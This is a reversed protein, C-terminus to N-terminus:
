RVFDKDKIGMMNGYESNDADLQPPPNSQASPTNKDREMAAEIRLFKDRFSRGCEVVPTFRGSQNKEYWKMALRARDFSIKEVTSLKRIDTEWSKLKQASITINRKSRIIKSLYLALSEWRDDDSRRATPCITSNNMTSNSDVTSNNNNFKKISTVKVKKYQDTLSDKVLEPDTLSDKVLETENDHKLFMPRDLLPDGFRSDDFPEIDHLDKESPDELPLIEYKNGKRLRTDKYRQATVKILGYKELTKIHKLFSIHSIGIWKGWDNATVNPFPIREGGRCFRNLEQYVIYAGPGIIRLWKDLLINEILFYGRKYNKLETTMQLRRPPFSFRGAHQHHMPFDFSGARHATGCGTWRVSVTKQNQVYQREISKIRRPHL